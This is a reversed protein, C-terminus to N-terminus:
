LVVDFFSLPLLPPLAHGGPYTSEGRSGGSCKSLASKPRSRWLRPGRPRRTLLILLKHSMMVLMAILLMSVIMMAVVTVIVFVELIMAMTLLMAIMIIAVVVVVLVM